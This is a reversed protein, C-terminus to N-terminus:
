GHVRAFVPSITAIHSVYLSIMLVLMHSLGLVYSLFKGTAWMNKEEIERQGKRWGM